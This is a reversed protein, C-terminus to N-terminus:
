RHAEDVITRFFEADDDELPLARGRYEVVLGHENEKYSMDICIMDDTSYFFVYGDNNGPGIGYASEPNNMGRELIIDRIRRVRDPDFGGTVM